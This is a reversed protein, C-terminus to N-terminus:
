VTDLERITGSADRVEFQTAISNPDRQIELALKVAEECSEAEVEIKWTIHYEVDNKRREKKKWPGPIAAWNM